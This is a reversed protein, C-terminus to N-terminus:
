YDRGELEYECDAIIAWCMATMSYGCYQWESEPSERYRMGGTLKAHKGSGYQTM